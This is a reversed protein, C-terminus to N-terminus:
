HKIAVAWLSRHRHKQGAWRHHEKGVVSHPLDILYVQTHTHTHMHTSTHIHARTHTYMNTHM